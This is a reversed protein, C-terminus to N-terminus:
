NNKREFTYALAIIRRVQSKSLYGKGMNWADRIETLASTHVANQAILRAIFKIVFVVVGSVTFVILLQKVLYAGYLWAGIEGLDAVASLIMELEKM